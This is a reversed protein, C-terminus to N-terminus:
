GSETSGRAVRSFLQYKPDLGTGNYLYQIIHNGDRVTYDYETITSELAKVGLRM